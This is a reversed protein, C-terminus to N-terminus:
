WWKDRRLRTRLRRLPTLQRRSARFRAASPQRYTRIFPRMPYRAPPRQGITQPRHPWCSSKSPDPRRSPM